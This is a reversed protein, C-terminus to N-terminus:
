SPALCLTIAGLAKSNEKRWSSLLANYAAQEEAPVTRHARHAQVTGAAPVDVIPAVPERPEQDTSTVEWLEQIQLYATMCVEFDCWNTGNFVPVLRDLSSSM